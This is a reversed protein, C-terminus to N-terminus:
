FPRIIVGFKILAQLNQSRIKNEDKVERRSMYDITPKAFIAWTDNLGVSAMLGINIFYNEKIDSKFDGAWPKTFGGFQTNLGLQINSTQSMLWEVQGYYTQVNRALGNVIFGDHNKLSDVLNFNTGVGGGIKFNGVKFLVDANLPLFAGKAEANANLQPMGLPKIAVDWYMYGIGSGLRVDIVRQAMATEFCFFYGLLCAFFYKM